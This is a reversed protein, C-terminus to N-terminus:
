RRVLTPQIRSDRRTAQLPSDHIAPASASEAATGHWLVAFTAIAWTVIEVGDDPDATASQMAGPNGGSPTMSSIWPGTMSM